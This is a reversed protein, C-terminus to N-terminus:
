AHPAEPYKKNFARLRRNAALVSREAAKTAAIRAAREHAIAEADTAFWTDGLRGEWQDPPGTRRTLKGCFFAFRPSM